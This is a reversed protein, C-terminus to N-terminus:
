VLFSVPNAADEDFPSRRSDEAAASFTREAATPGGTREVAIPAFDGPTVLRAGREEMAGAAVTDKLHYQAASSYLDGVTCYKHESYLKPIKPLEWLGKEVANVYTSLLKARKEGTMTFSRARVDVYDEVAV